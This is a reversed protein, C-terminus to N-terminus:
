AEETSLDSICVHCDHDSDDSQEMSLGESLPPTISRHRYEPSSELTAEDDSSKSSSNNFMADTQAGKYHTRILSPRRTQKLIGYRSLASQQEQIYANSYCSSQNEDAFIKDANPLTKLCLFLSSCWSEYLYTTKTSDVIKLSYEIGKHQLYIYDNKQKITGNICFTQFPLYNLQRFARPITKGVNPKIIIPVMSTSEAKNKGHVLAVRRAEEKYQNHEPTLISPKSTSTKLAITGICEPTSTFITNTFYILTLLLFPIRQM